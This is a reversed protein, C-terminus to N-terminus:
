CEQALALLAKDYAQRVESDFCVFISVVPVNEGAGALALAAAEVGEVLLVEQGKIIRVDLDHSWRL